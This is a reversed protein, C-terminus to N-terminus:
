EECEKELFKKIGILCNEKEHTLSKCEQEGQYVCIDCTFQQSFFKSLEDIDSNIIKEYNTM